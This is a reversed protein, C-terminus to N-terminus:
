LKKLDLDVSWDFEARVSASGPEADAYLNKLERQNCLAFPKLFLLGGLLASTRRRRVITFLPVCASRIIMRSMSPTM